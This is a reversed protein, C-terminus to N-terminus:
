NCSSSCRWHAPHSSVVNFYDGAISRVFSGALGQIGYAGAKGFPEGALWDLAVSSASMDGHLVCHLLDMLSQQWNWQCSQLLEVCHLAAM